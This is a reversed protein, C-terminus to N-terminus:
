KDYNALDKLDEVVSYPTKTKGVYTNKKAKGHADSGGTAILQYKDAINRYYETIKKSINPYYVEIGNLGAAVFQVILEDVKTIFPHALVAVGKADHIMKIAEIPTQKFKPVYAPAWDALYSNFAERYDSVVGKEIMITALHPRGVADSKALACVEDMKIGDIGLGKLKKIMKEMRKLRSSQMDKLHNIFTQDDYDFMYGLIHIDRGEMEASLEVGPIVEINFEKAAKITPKIGDITDHDTIAICAIENKKADKLVELPSSTSDSYHTHIHLDAYKM